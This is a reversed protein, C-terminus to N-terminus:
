RDKLSRKSEIWYEFHYAIHRLQNALSAIDARSAHGEEVLRDTMKLLDEARARYTTLSEPAARDSILKGFNVVTSALVQFTRLFSTTNWHTSTGLLRTLYAVIEQAEMSSFERSWLDVVSQVDQLAEALSRFTGESSLTPARSINVFLSALSEPQVLQEPRALTLVLDGQAGATIFGRLNTHMQSIVYTHQGQDEAGIVEQAEQLSHALSAAIQKIAVDAKEQELNEVRQRLELNQSILRALQDRLTKVVQEPNDTDTRPM